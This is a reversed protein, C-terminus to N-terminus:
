QRKYLYYIERETLARNYIRFEDMDGNLVGRNQSGFFTHIGLDVHDISTVFDEVTYNGPILELQETIFEDWIKLLLMEHLSYVYNSNDDKISIFISHIDDIDRPDAL